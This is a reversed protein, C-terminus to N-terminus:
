NKHVRVVPWNLRAASQSRGARAKMECVHHANKMIGEMPTILVSSRRSTKGEKHKNACFMFRKEELLIFQHFVFTIGRSASHFFTLCLREAQLKWQWTFKRAIVCSGVSETLPYLLQPIFRQEEEDEEQSALTGEAAVSSRLLATQGTDRITVCTFNGERPADEIKNSPNFCVSLLHSPSIVCSLHGLDCSTARTCRM